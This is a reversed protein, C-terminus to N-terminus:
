TVCTLTLMFPTNVNTVSGDGTPALFGAVFQHDADGETDPGVISESPVSQDSGGAEGVQATAACHGIEQSFTVVYIGTAVHKAATADFNSGLDGEADVNAYMQFTASGGGSGGPAGQPGQKNFSLSKEHSSCEHSSHVIRLAGDSKAVCGHIVGSHTAAALGVGVGAVGVSGVGIVGAAVMSAGARYRNM